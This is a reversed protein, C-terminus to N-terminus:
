LGCNLIKKKLGGVSRSYTIQNSSPRKM